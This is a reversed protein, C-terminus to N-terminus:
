QFAFSLSAGAVQPGVTPTVQVQGVKSGGVKPAILIMTVGGAVLVGGAIFTITSLPALLDIRGGADLGSQTCVDNSKSPDPNPQCRDRYIGANSLALAGTVGGVILSAVGVGGVIFGATRLPSPKNPKDKQGTSPEGVRIESGAVAKVEVQQGPEVKVSTVNRQHGEAEVALELVGPDVPIAESMSEDTLQNGNLVIRAGAPLAADKTVTLKGIMKQAEAARKEAENRGAGKGFALAANKFHEVAAIYKGQKENCLGLNLVTSAAPDLAKSEEFKKCAGVYDGSNILSRGEQFLQDAKSAALAAPAALLLAFAVAFSQLKM